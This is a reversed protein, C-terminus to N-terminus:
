KRAPQVFLAATGTGPTAAAGAGSLPVVTVNAWRTPIAQFKANPWQTPIPEMRGPPTQPSPMAFAFPRNQALLPSRWKSNPQQQAWWNQANPALTQPTLVTISQGPQSPLLADPAAPTLVTSQALLGPAGLLFFCFFATRM